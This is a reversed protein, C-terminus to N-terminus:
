RVGPVEQSQHIAKLKHYVYSGKTLKTNASLYPNMALYFRIVGTSSVNSFIKHHAM